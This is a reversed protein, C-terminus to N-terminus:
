RGALEIVAVVDVGVAAAAAVVARWASASIDSREGRVVKELIAAASTAM